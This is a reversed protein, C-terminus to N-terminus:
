ALFVKDAVRPIIWSSSAYNRLSRHVFFARFAHLPSVALSSGGRPDKSVIASVTNDGHSASTHTEIADQARKRLASREYVQSFDVEGDTSGQPAGTAKAFLAQSGASVRDM